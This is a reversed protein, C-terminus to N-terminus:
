LAREIADAALRLVEIRAYNKDNAPILHWPAHRTSTRAVMDNVALEYDDWKSRNRWDEDTLKWRKHPSRARERFRRAQEDKTIHLWYKVVVIGFTTL